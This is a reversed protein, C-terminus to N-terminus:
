SKKAAQKEPNPTSAPASAPPKEDMAKLLKRLTKEIETGTQWADDEHPFARYGVYALQYLADVDDVFFVFDISSKFRKDKKEWAKLLHAITKEFDELLWLVKRDYDASLDLYLMAGSKAAMVQHLHAQVEKRCRPIFDQQFSKWSSMCDDVESFLTKFKEDGSRMKEKITETQELVKQVKKGYEYFRGGEKAQSWMEAEQGLTGKEDLEDRYAAEAVELPINVEKILQVVSRGKKSLVRAKRYTQDAHRAEHYFISAIWALEGSTLDGLKEIDENHDTFASINYFIKWPGAEFKGATDINAPEFKCEPIGSNTLAAQIQGMLYGVFKDIPMNPNSQRQGVINRTFEGMRAKNRLGAAVYAGTGFHQPEYERQIVPAAASTKQEALMRQVAQNGVLKQMQLINAV